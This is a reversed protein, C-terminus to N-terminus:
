NGEIILEVRRNMARGEATDNSAIPEAEGYGKASLRASDIGHAILYKEVSEARRHSLDVNYDAAGVSDTFGAVTVHVNPHDKLTEVAEDLVTESDSTLVDSDHEFNVGKLEIIHPLTTAHEMEPSMEVPEATLPPSAAPVVTAAPAARSSIPIQLGVSLISDGFNDHGFMKIHQASVRIAGDWSDWPISLFGVGVTAYTDNSKTAFDPNMEMVGAGMLLFPAFVRPRDYFFWLANPGYATQHTSGTLPSKFDLKYDNIGFELNWSEAIPKGFELRFGTGNDTNRAHDAYVFSVQPAIYWRDDYTQDGALAPLASAALAIGALSAFLGIHHKM